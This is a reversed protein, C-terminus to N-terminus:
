VLQVVSLLASQPRKAMPVAKWTPQMQASSLCCRLSFKSAQISVGKGVVVEPFVFLHFVQTQENGASYSVMWSPGIHAIHSM